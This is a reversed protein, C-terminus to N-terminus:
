PHTWRLLGILDSQSLVRALLFEVQRRSQGFKRPICCSRTGLWLHSARGTHTCPSDYPPRERPTSDTCTILESYKGKMPEKRQIQPSGLGVPWRLEIGVRVCKGRGNFCDFFISWLLCSLVKRCHSIGRSPTGVAAKNGTGLQGANGRGWAYV